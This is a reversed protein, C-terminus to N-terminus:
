VVSKRDISYSRGEGSANINSFTNDEVLRIPGKLKTKFDGSLLSTDLVVTVNNKGNADDLLMNLYPSVKSRDKVDYKKPNFSEKSNGSEESNDSEESKESPAPCAVLTMLLSIGLGFYLTHKLFKYTM